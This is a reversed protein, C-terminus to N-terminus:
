LNNILTLFNITDTYNICIWVFFFWKEFENLCHIQQIEREKKRAVIKMEQAISHTHPTHTHTLTHFILSSNIKIPIIAYLWGWCIWFFMRYDIMCIWPHHFHTFPIFVSISTSLQLAIFFHLRRCPFPFYTEAYEKEGSVVFSHADTVM